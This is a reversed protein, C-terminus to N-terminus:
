SPQANNGWMYMASHEVRVVYFGNRRDVGKVTFQGASIWEKEHSYKTLGVKEVPIARAGGSVEFVVPIVRRQTKGKAFGHAIRKSTTFSSPPITINAGTKLTNIKEAPFRSGRYITPSVDANQISQALVRAQNARDQPVAKGGMVKMFDSQLRGVAPISDQWEKITDSLRRGDATQALARRGSSTNMAALQGKHLTSGPIQEGLETFAKENAAKDDAAMKDWEAKKADSAPAPTKTKWNAQKELAEIEKQAKLASPHPKKEAENMNDKLKDFFSKKKPAAGGPKSSFKGDKAHFPNGGKGANPFNLSDSTKGKKLTPLKREESDETDDTAILIWKGDFWIWPKAKDPPDSTPTEGFKAM